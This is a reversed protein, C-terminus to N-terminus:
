VKVLVSEERKSGGKENLCSRADTAKALFDWEAGATKLMGVAQQGVASATASFWHSAMLTYVAFRYDEAYSTFCKYSFVM